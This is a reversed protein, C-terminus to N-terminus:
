NRCINININESMHKFNTKAAKIDQFYDPFQTLLHESKISFFFNVAGIYFVFYVYMIVKKPDSFNSAKSNNTSPVLYM